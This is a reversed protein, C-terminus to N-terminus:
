ISRIKPPVDTEESPPPMKGNEIKSLYTFDVEITRALERQSLQAKVRAKKLHVGFAKLDDMSIEVKEKYNFVSKM